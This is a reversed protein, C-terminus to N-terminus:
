DEELANGAYFYFGNLSIMVRRISEYGEVIFQAVYEEPVGSEKLDNSIQDLKEAIVKKVYNISRLSLQIDKAARKAVYNSRETGWLSTKGDEQIILVQNGRAKVRPYQPLIKNNNM